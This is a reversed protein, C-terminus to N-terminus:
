THDPAAVTDICTIDDSFLHLAKWLTNQDITDFAKSYDVFMLRLEQNEPKVTKEVANRLALISDTTGKGPM